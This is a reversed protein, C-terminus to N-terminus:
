DIQVRAAKAVVSWKRGEAAIFASFQAASVPTPVAGLNRISVQMEPTRLGENILANLRAIIPQPTGAPAVIGNFTAVEFDPVGAEIMTPLDNALLTRTRSTVALPRLRGDRILPLLITISEFTMDVQAGLLGTISDAGSKYPVGVIDVGAASKFLEGTLHPLGGAGTQAYNLKGPNTKAYAILDGVTKAAVSPHVVLIQYSESFEAVASFHQSPDYGASASVAPIVALVSTNGVLLTYGDPPSAAVFRAGIAGGAGPRNDIVVPQGLKPLIQSLLRAPIDTPGGAASPVVLRIPRQPYTQASAGKTGAAIASTMVAAFAIIAIVHAPYGTSKIKGM